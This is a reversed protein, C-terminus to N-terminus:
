RSILLQDFLTQGAHTRAAHFLPQLFGALHQVLERMVGAHHQNGTRRGTGQLADLEHAQTVIAREGNQHPLAALHLVLQHHEIAGHAGFLENM